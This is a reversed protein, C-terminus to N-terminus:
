FAKATLGILKGLCWFPVIFAMGITVPVAIALCILLYIVSTVPQEDIHWMIGDINREDIGWKFLVVYAAAIYCIVFYTTITTLMHRTYM